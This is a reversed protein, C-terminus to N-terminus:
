LLKAKVKPMNRLEFDYGEKLMESVISIFQVLRYEYNIEDHELIYKELLM